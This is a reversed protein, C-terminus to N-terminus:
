QEAADVKGSGTRGRGLLLEFQPHQRQVAEPVLLRAVVKALRPFQVGTEGHGVPALGHRVVRRQLTGPAHLICLGALRNEAMYIFQLRLSLQLPRRALLSEDICQPREIALPATWFTAPIKGRGHLLEGRAVRVVVFRDDESCQGAHAGGSDLPSESPVIGRKHLREGGNQLFHVLAPRLMGAHHVIEDM